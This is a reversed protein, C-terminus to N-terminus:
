RENEGLPNRPSYRVTTLVNAMWLPPCLLDTSFNLCYFVVPHTGGMTTMAWEFFREAPISMELDHMYPDTEDGVEWIKTLPFAALILEKTAEMEVRNPYILREYM